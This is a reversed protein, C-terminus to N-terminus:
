LRTLTEIMEDAAQIVRANAAYAQELILLNQLEKDTDVGESLSLQTLETFRTSTFTLDQEANSRTSALSGSFSSLLDATTLPGSGFDGSAPTRSTELASQLSNLLTSDGVLGTSTAGLGDRIRWIEGGAEPDVAFNLALRRSLGIEDASDFAAGADTFL